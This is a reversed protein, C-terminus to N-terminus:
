HADPPTPGSEPGHRGSVVRRTLRRLWPTPDPGRLIYGGVALATGGYIFLDSLNWLGDLVGWLAGTHVGIFDTVSGYAVNEFVNAMNGGLSIGLGLGMLRLGRPLLLYLWAVLATVLAGNIIQFVAGPAGTIGHWGHVPQTHGLYVVPELLWTSHHLPVFARVAINSGEAITFVLGM